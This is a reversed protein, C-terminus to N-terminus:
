NTGPPTGRAQLSEAPLPGAESGRSEKRCSLFSGAWLLSPTLHKVLQQRHPVSNRGRAIWCGTDPCSYKSLQYLNPALLQGAGRHLLLLSLSLPAAPQKGGRYREKSDETSEKGHQWCPGGTSGDPVPTLEREKSVWSGARQGHTVMRGGDEPRLGAAPGTPAVALLWRQRKHCQPLPGEAQALAIRPIHKWTGLQVTTGESEWVLPSFLLRWM